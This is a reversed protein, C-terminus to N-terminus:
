PTGPSGQCLGIEAVVPLHDSGIDDGIGLAAVCAEGNTLVHDLPLGFPGLWSPWTAGSPALRLGSGAVFRKMALSWPTGNLDGAVVVPDRDLEPLAAVAEFYRRQFRFSWRTTPRTLHAVVVHLPGLDSALTAVLGIRSHRSVALTRLDTVPLRSLLMLGHGAEDPLSARYPYRALSGQAGVREPWAEQLLVIDADQEVVLAGLREYDGNRGWVNASVITVTPGDPRLAAVTGRHILVDAVSLGLAAVAVLAALRLRLALAAVCLLALAAALHVRAQALLDLPWWLSGCFSLPVLAAAAVSATAVVPRSRLEAIPVTWEPVLGRWRRQARATQAM